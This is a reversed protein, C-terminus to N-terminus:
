ECECRPSINLSQQPRTLVANPKNKRILLCLILFFQYLSRSENRMSIKRKQGASNVSEIKVEINQDMVAAKRRFGNIM